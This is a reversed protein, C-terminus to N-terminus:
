YTIINDEFLIILVIFIYWGFFQLCKNVFKNQVKDIDAEYRINTQLLYRLDLRTHTTPGPNTEVDGTKILHM